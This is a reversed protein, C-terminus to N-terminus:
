LINKRNTLKANRHKKSPIPTLLTVSLNSYYSRVADRLSAPALIQLGGDSSLKALAALRETTIIVHDVSYTTRLNYAQEVPASPEGFWDLLTKINSAFCKFTAPGDYIVPSAENPGDEDLNVKSLITDISKLRPSYEPSLRVTALKRLDLCGPEGDTDNYGVVYITNKTKVLHKPTFRTEWERRTEISNSESDYKVYDASYLIRRKEKIAQRVVLFAWYLSDDEPASACNTFSHLLPEQFVTVLPCLKQLISNAQSQSIHPNSSVAFIVKKLTEDSFIHRGWYASHTQAGVVYADVGAERLARIDDALGTGTITLGYPKLFENLKRISLPHREDSNKYLAYISLITRLKLSKEKAM